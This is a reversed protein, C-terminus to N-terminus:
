EDEVRLRVSRHIVNLVAIPRDDFNCQSAVRLISPAVSFQMLYILKQFDHLWSESLPSNSVLIDLFLPQDLLEGAEYGVRPDVQFNM